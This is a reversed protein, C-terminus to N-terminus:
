VNTRNQTLYPRNMMCPFILLSDPGNYPLKSLYKSISPYFKVVNVQIFRKKRKNKINKFWQIVDSNCAWQNQNTVGRIHRIVKELVQQSIKRVDGKMLNILRVKPNVYFNDKHDKLTAFCGIKRFKKRWLTNGVRSQKPNSISCKCVFM